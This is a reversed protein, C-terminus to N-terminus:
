AVNVLPKVGSSADRLFNAGDQIMRPLTGDKILAFVVLAGAGYTFARGM